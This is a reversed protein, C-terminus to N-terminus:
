RITLSFCSNLLSCQTANFRVRVMLRVCMVGLFYILGLFFFFFFFVRVLAFGTVALHYFIQLCILAPKTTENEDEISDDYIKHFGSIDKDLENSQVIPAM